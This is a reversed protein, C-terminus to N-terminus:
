RGDTPLASVEEFVRITVQKRLYPRIRDEMRKRFNDNLWADWYERHGWTSSVMFVRPDDLSRWTERISLGEAQSSTGPPRAADAM